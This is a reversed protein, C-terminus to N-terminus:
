YIKVIIIHFNFTKNLIERRENINMKSIKDIVTFLQM